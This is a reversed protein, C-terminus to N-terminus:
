VLLTQNNKLVQKYDRSSNTAFTQITQIGAKALVPKYRQRGCNFGSKVYKGVVCKPCNMIM